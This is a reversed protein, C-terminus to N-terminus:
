ILSSQICCQIQKVPQIAVKVTCFCAWIQWGMLPSSLRASFLKYLNQPTLSFIFISCHNKLPLFFQRARWILITPWITKFKLASPLRILLLTIPFLPPSFIFSTQHHLYSAPEGSKCKLPGITKGTCVM